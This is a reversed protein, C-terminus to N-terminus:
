FGRSLAHFAIAAQACEGNGYFKRGEIYDNKAPNDITRSREIPGLSSLPQFTESAM